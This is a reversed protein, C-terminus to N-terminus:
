HGDSDPMELPRGSEDVQDPDPKLFDDPLQAVTMGALTGPKIDKIPIGLMESVWAMNAPNFERM